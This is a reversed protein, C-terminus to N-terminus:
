CTLLCLPLYCAVCLVLRQALHNKLFSCFLHAPLVGNLALVVLLMSCGVVITLPRIIMLTRPRLHSGSLLKASLPLSLSLPLTEPCQVLFPQSFTPEDSVELTIEWDDQRHRCEMYVHHFAM